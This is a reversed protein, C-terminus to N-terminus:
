RVTTGEHNISVVDVRATVALTGLATEIALRTEADAALGAITPGSGSLWAGHAGAALIAELAAASEPVVALRQQQHWRDETAVRLADFDGAAWAAVFMAARGLNFVADGFAMSAPLTTRSERTSTEREPIWLVIEPNVASPVRVCRDGAVVVLGGFMSAAANDAHGELRAAVELLSARQDHWPEGRQMAAAVVGAVRAAGSFGMGRGPPFDTRVAISGVGGAAAFARAAPHADSAAISADDDGTLLELELSRGLALGLSDFGAGLNASTAPVRVITM